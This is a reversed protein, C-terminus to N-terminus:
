VGSDDQEVKYTANWKNWANCTDQIAKKDRITKEINEQDEMIQMALGSSAHWAIHCHVLWTGPNDTKFAIVIYGGQPLLAVDRRPPNNYNMNNFADAATWNTTDWETDNQALLVFDHGHLHIPHRAPISLKGSNHGSPITLNGTIVLVVWKDQYDEPIIALEPNSTNVNQGLNLITPNGWELWMPLMAIDWRTYNGHSQATPPVLGVEYTDSTYNNAYDGPTLSKPVVPVLSKIDEDDCDDPETTQGAQTVWFNSVPLTYTSNTFYRIIGTQKVPFQINNCGDTPITRIWYDMNVSDDPNLADTSPIAEVIVSYRQGIGINLYKVTYPQIPVFDASVVTLIHNDISFKFQSATSTNILRL